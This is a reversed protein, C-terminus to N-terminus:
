RTQVHGASRPPPQAEDMLKVLQAKILKGGLHADIQTLQERRLRQRLDVMSRCAGTGALEFARELATVFIM